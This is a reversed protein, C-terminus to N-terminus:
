KSGVALALEGNTSLEYVVEMPASLAAVALASSIAFALLGPM